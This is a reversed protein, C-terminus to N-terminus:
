KDDKHERPHRAHDHVMLLIRNGEQYRASWRSQKRRKAPVILGETRLSVPPVPDSSLVLCPLM